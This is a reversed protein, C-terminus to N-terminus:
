FLSGGLFLERFFIRRFHLVINRGLMITEGFLYISTEFFLPVGLDAMKIIPNGMIKVMWKPTIVGIKPEVGMNVGVLSAMSWNKPLYDDVSVPPYM